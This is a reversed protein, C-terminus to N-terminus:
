LKLVDREDLMRADGMLPGLVDVNAEVEGTLSNLCAIHTHLVTRGLVHHRIHQGLSQSPLLM